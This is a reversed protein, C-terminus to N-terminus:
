PQCGRSMEGVAEAESVVDAFSADMDFLNQQQILPSRDGCAEGVVMPRFGSCAADLATARVCGSTSVGCVVVTDVGLLHLETALTTGFFASPNRKLVVTDGMAPTLIDTHQLPPADLGRTDGDQWAQITKTKKAQVAGDVLTPHNYRVQAWVVPIGATRAATVLRAMADVSARGEPNHSLDLPSGPKWYAACVDILLLAPRRGWGLRQGFGADRYAAHRPHSDLSLTAM